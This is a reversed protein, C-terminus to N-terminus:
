VAEEQVFRDPEAGQEPCALRKRGIVIGASQHSGDSPRGAAREGIAEEPELGM